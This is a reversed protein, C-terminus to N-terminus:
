YPRRSLIEEVAEQLDRRGCKILAGLLKHQLKFPDTESIFSKLCEHARDKYSRPYKCEIDDIDGERIGLERALDKWNTGIDQVVRDIVFESSTTTPRCRRPPYRTLMENINISPVRDKVRNAFSDIKHESIYGRKELLRVLDELSNIYGSRRRSNIEPQFELILNELQDRDIPYDVFDKRFSRYDVTLIPM